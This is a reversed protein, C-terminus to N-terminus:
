RKQLPSQCELSRCLNWQNITNWIQTQPAQLKIQPTKFSQKLPTLGGFGRSSPVCLGNNPVNRTGFVINFFYCRHLSKSLLFCGKTEGSIGVFFVQLFNNCSIAASCDVLVHSYTLM